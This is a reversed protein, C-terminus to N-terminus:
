CGKLGGGGGCARWSGGGAGQSSSGKSLSRQADAWRLLLRKQRLLVGALVRVRLVGKGRHRWRHRRTRRHMGRLGRRRRGCRGSRGCALVFLLRLRLALRWGLLIGVSGGSAISCKAIAVLSHFLLPGFLFIAM